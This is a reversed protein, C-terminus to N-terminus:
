FTALYPTWGRSVKTYISVILKHFGIILSPVSWGPQNTERRLFPGVGTEDLWGCNSWAGLQGFRSYFLQHLQCASLAIVRLGDWGVIPHHAPTGIEFLKVARVREAWGLEWGRPCMMCQHVWESLSVCESLQGPRPQGPIVRGHSPNTDHHIGDMWIYIYIYIHIYIYIIYTHHNKPSLIPFNTQKNPTGYVMNWLVGSHHRRTPYLLLASNCYLNWQNSLSRWTSLVAKSSSSEIRSKM